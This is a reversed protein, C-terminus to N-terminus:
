PKVGEDTLKEIERNVFWAANRLERLTAERGLRRNATTLCRIAAAVNFTQVDTTM